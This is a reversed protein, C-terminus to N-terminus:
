VHLMLPNFRNRDSLNVDPQKNLLQQVIKVHGNMCAILLPTIGNNGCVNVDAGNDTLLQVIDHLFAIYLPSRGDTDLLNIEADNSLLLKVVTYHEKQCAICLPSLGNHERVNVNEGRSILLSVRSMNGQECYKYFPSFGNNESSSKSNGGYLSSSEQSSSENEVETRSILPQLPYSTERPIRGGKKNSQRNFASVKEEYCIIFFICILTCIFVVLTSIWIGVTSRGTNKKLENSITTATTVTIIHATSRRECSADALFCGNGISVCQPYKYIEDSYYDANPCGNVFNDCSYADVDSYRLFLCVGKTVAIRARKYCFELLVTLTKDPLCTYGNSKTCNLAVSREDMENQNKPCSATTQVQFVYEADSIHLCLPILIVSILFECYDSM